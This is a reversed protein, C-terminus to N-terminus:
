AVPGPKTAADSNSLHEYGDDCSPRRLISRPEEQLHTGLSGIGRGHNILVALRSLLGVSRTM